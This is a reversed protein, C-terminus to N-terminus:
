RVDSGSDDTTDEQRPRVGGPAACRGSGAEEQEAKLRRAVAKCAHRMLWAWAGANTAKESQQDM